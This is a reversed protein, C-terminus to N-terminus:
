LKEGATTLATFLATDEPNGKLAILQLVKVERQLTGHVKFLTDISAYIRRIFIGLLTVALTGLVGIVPLVFKIAIDAWDTAGDM